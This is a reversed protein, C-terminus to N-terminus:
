RVVIGRRGSPKGNLLVVAQYFGPHISGLEVRNRDSKLEQRLAIRGTADVLQLEIIGTLQEDLVVEIWDLAPNPYISFQLVSNFEGIGSCNIFDITISDRASCGAQNTVTVSYSVNTPTTGPNSATIGSFTSGTSWLYTFAGGGASLPLSQNLCLSTDNPLSVTPAASSLALITDTRSPCGANSSYPTSSYTYTGTTNSGV